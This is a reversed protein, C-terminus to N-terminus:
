PADTNIYDGRVMNDWRLQILPQPTMQDSSAEVLIQRLHSVCQYQYSITELYIWLAYSNM